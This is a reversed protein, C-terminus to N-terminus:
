TLPNPTAYHLVIPITAARITDAGEVPLDTLDPAMPEIWDCRGGLTRDFVLAQGIQIKLQDFLAERQPGGVFLELVAEHEYHYMLPSMTVEPEGPNGDRLIVLGDRPLEIPLVENREVVVGFPLASRVVAVLATMIEHITSAPM